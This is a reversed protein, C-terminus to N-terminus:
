NTPLQPNVATRLVTYQRLQDGWCAQSTNDDDVDDDDGGSKVNVQAALPSLQPYLFM